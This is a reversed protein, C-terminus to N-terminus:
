SGTTSGTAVPRKMFVVVMGYAEGELDHLEHEIDECEGLRSTWRGSPLQRAAHLPLADDNAFLAIKEFGPEANEQTCESFGLSAFLERFAVLTEARTVGAPWFVEKVDTPLPWWWNGTDDAAYAICNYRKDSPSTIRYSGQALRPFAEEFPMVM